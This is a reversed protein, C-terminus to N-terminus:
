GRRRARKQLTLLLAAAQEVDDESAHTRDLELVSQLLPVAKGDGNKQGRYLKALEIMASGDNMVAAKSFWRIASKLNRRKKYELGLNFAGASAGNRYARAYWYAAKRADKRM